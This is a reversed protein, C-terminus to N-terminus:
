HGRAGAASQTALRLLTSKGASHDAAAKQEPTQAKRIDRWIFMLTTWIGAASQILADSNCLATLDVKDPDAGMTALVGRAMIGYGVTTLHMGDLGFLGGMRFGGVLASEFMNNTLTKRDCVVGEADGYHKADYQSLVEYLDVFKLTRNIVKAQLIDRIRANTAAVYDDMAKMDAASMRGYANPSLAFRNEYTDFYGARPHEYWVIYDDHQSQGTNGFPMLNAVCRPRGLANFYIEGVEAPLAALHEALEEIQTFDDDQHPLGANAGYAKGFYFKASAQGNFCMDWLGNNSGINVLLREPKREAVWQLQTMGQWPDQNSPNLTFRSNFGYYLGATDVNAFNGLSLPAGGLGAVIDAAQKQGDGASFAYLHWVESGAVAVNDFYQYGTPSAPAGLWYAANQGLWASIRDLDPNKLWEEMDIVFPQGPDPSFFDEFGLARAIQAPASMRCLESKTTLSRTGQYLSDGIAMLKPNLFQM